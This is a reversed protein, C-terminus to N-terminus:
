ETIAYDKELRMDILTLLADKVNANIRLDKEISLRLQQLEDEKYEKRTM